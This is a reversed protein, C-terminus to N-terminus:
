ESGGLRQKSLEAIIQEITPQVLTWGKERYLKRHYMDCPLNHIAKGDPRYWTVLKRSKGYTEVDLGQSTLFEKDDKLAQGTASVM